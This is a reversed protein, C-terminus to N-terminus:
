PSTEFADNKIKCRFTGVFFVLFFLLLLLVRSPERLRAPQAGGEMAAKITAAGVTTARNERLNGIVCPKMGHSFQMIEACADQQHSLTHFPQEHQVTVAARTPAVVSPGCPTSGSDGSLRVECSPLGTLHLLRPLLSLTRRRFPIGLVVQLVVTSFCFSVGGHSQPHICSWDARSPRRGQDM